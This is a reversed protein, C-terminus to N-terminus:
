AILSRALTMSYLWARSSPEARNASSMTHPWCASAAPPTLSRWLAHLWKLGNVPWNCMPKVFGDPATFYELNVGIDPDLGGRGPLDSIASTTSFNGFPGTARNTDGWLWFLKGRYPTVRVTDQGLVEANLLPERIPAPYGTLISDRYVDQGTVRYLREAINLPQIRLEIRAGSRVHLTAGGGPYRYGPSEIRFYVDRDMLGPENWAVIGNSDTVSVINNNTTLAVLPM